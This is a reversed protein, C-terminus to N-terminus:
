RVISKTVKPSARYILRSVQASIEKKEEYDKLSNKDKPTKLFGLLESHSISYTDCLEYMTDALAQDAGSEYIIEALDAPKYGLLVCGTYALLEDRKSSLLSVARCVLERSFYDSEINVGGDPLLEGIEGTDDGDKGAVPTNISINRTCTKQQKRFVDILFNNVAEMYSSIQQAEPALLFYDTKKMVHLLADYALDHEKLKQDNEKVDMELLRYVRSRNATTRLACHAIFNYCCEWLNDYLLGNKDLRLEQVNTIGHERIERLATKLATVDAHENTYHTM